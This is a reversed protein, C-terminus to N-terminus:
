NGNPHCPSNEHHSADNRHAGHYEHQLPQFANSFLAKPQFTKFLPSRFKIEQEGKETNLTSHFRVVKLLISVPRKKAQFTYTTVETLTPSSREFYRCMTTKMGQKQVKSENFGSPRAVGKTHHHFPALVTSCGYFLFIHSLFEARLTFDRRQKHLVGM